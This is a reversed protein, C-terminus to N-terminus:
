ALKKKLAFFYWKLYKPAWKIIRFRSEGEERDTWTCPIETVKYGSFHAKTVIEIGVEFGGDSEIEMSNLMKKRYLKFSNTADHTPLGTLHWLSIGAIRSITKKILPGGIQKGGKMYRSGCVIDYGESMLRCMDDVVSYDDSLDAMTVLLYDEGAERLGTKIANVVGGAPNKVLKMDLGSEIFEKVAPITNDQDFDYVIYIKHPARISDEIAKITDGINEGENYVPIIIGVAPKDM